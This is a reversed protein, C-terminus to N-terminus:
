GLNPTCRESTDNSYTEGQSQQRGNAEAAGIPPTRTGAVCQSHQDTRSNAQQQHKEYWPVSVKGAKNKVLAIGREQEDFIRRLNKEEAEDGSDESNWQRIKKQSAFGLWGVFATLRWWCRLGKERSGEKM